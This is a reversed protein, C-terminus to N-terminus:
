MLAVEANHDSPDEDTLAFNIPPERGGHSLRWADM